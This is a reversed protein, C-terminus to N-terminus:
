ERVKNEMMWIYIPVLCSRCDCKVIDNDCVQDTLACRGITGDYRYYRSGESIMVEGEEPVKWM